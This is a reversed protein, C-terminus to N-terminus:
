LEDLGLRCSDPSSPNTITSTTSAKDCFGEDNEPDNRDKVMKTNHQNSISKGDEVSGSLKKLESEILGAVSMSSPNTSIKVHVLRSCKRYLRPDIM